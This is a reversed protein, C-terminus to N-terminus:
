SMLSVFLSNYGPCISFLSTLETSAYKVLLMRLKNKVKLNIKEKGEGPWVGQAPNIIEHGSRQLLGERERGRSLVIHPSRVASVSPVKRGPHRM